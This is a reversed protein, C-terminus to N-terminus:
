GDTVNNRKMGISSESRWVFVRVPTNLIQNEKLGCYITVILTLLEWVVGTNTMGVDMLM